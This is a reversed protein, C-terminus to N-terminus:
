RIPGLAGGRVSRVRVRERVASSRIKHSRRVRCWLCCLCSARTFRRASSPLRRYRVYAATTRNNPARQPPRIQRTNTRKTVDTGVVTSTHYPYQQHTCVARRTHNLVTTQRGSKVAKMVNRALYAVFQEENRLDQIIVYSYARKHMIDGETDHEDHEGGSEYVHGDTRVYTRVATALPVQVDNLLASGHRPVDTTHTCQM